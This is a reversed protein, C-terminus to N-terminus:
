AIPRRSSIAHVFKQYWSHQLTFTIKLKYDVMFACLLFLSLHTPGFTEPRVYFLRVLHLISRSVYLAM